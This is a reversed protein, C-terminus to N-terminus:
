DQIKKEKFNMLTLFPTQIFFTNFILINSFTKNAFPNVEFKTLNEQNRFNDANKICNRLVHSAHVAAESINCYSM